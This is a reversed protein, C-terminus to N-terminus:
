YTQQGLSQTQGDRYLSFAEGTGTKVGYVHEGTWCDTANIWDSSRSCSTGIGHLNRKGKSDYVYNGDTYLHGQSDYVEGSTLERNSFNGILKELSFLDSITTNIWETGNITGRFTLFFSQKEFNGEQLKLTRESTTLYKIYDWFSRSLVEEASM